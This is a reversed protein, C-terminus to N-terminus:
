GLTMQPMKQRAPERIEPTYEIVETLHRMWMYLAFAILNFDLSVPDNGNGLHVAGVLCRLFLFKRAFSPADDFDRWIGAALLLAVVVFVPKIYDVPAVPLMFVLDSVATLILIEIATRRAWRPDSGSGRVAVRNHRVDFLRFFPMAKVVHILLRGGDPLTFEQSGRLEHITNEGLFHGDVYVYARGSFVPDNIEVQRGDHLPYRRTSM